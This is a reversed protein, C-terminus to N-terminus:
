AQSGGFAPHIASFVPVSTSISPGINVATFITALAQFILVKALMIGRPSKAPVQWMGAM